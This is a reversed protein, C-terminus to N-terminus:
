VRQDCARILASRGSRLANRPHRQRAPTSGPRTALTPSHAVSPQRSPPQVSSPCPGLDERRHRAAEIGSLTERLSELGRGTGAPSARELLAALPRVAVSCWIETEPHAIATRALLEDALRIAVPPSTLAALPDRRLAFRLRRWLVRVRSPGGSSATTPAPTHAQLAM